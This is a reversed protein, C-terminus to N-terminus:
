NEIVTIRGEVERDVVIGQKMQERLFEMIVFRVNNSVEQPLNADTKKKFALMKDNGQAVYDITAIRYQAQPDIEKGNLRASKLQGDATIVLEVGHSLAEGGTSAVQRFLEM